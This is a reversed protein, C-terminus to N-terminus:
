RRHRNVHISPYATEALSVRMTRGGTPEVRRTGRPVAMDFV